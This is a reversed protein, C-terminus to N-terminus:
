KDANAIQRHFDTPCPGVYIDGILTTSPDIAYSTFDAIGAAKLVDEDLFYNASCDKAPKGLICAAADAMIQPNRARKATKAGGLKVRVAATDVIAVPWLSNVAIGFPKFEHGWGMTLLSMGYKSVTYPLQGGIWASDPNLPPCINLIHANASKKLHPLAMKTLAFVARTNISQMLDFTKLSTQDTNTLSLVGANNVLIDIGGFTEITKKVVEALAADDRVDCAVAMATGGAETIEQVVSHITGSVKENEKESRAVIVLKAGQSALKLAIARGIGRSAGTIIAVQNKM